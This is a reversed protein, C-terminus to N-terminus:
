EMTRMAIEREPIMEGEPVPVFSEHEFPLLFVLRAEDCAAGVLQAGEPLGKFCELHTVRGQIYQQVMFEPAVMVHVLRRM